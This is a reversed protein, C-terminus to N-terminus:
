ETAPTDINNIQEVTQDMLNGIAGQVSDDGDGLFVAVGIIVTILIALAIAIYTNM